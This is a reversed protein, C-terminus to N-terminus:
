LIERVNYGYANTHPPASFSSSASSSSSSPIAKKMKKEQVFKKRGEGERKVKSTPIYL